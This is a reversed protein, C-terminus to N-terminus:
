AFQSAHNLSAPPRSSGSRHRPGRAFSCGYLNPCPHRALDFPERPEYPHDVGSKGDSSGGIRLLRAPARCRCHQRDHALIRTRSLYSTPSRLGWFPQRKFIHYASRSGAESDHPLCMLECKSAGGSNRSFSFFLCRPTSIM